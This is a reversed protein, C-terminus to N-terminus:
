ILFRRINGIIMDSPLEAPQSGFLALFIMAVLSKNKMQQRTANRLAHCSNESVAVANQQEVMFAMICTLIALIIYVAM